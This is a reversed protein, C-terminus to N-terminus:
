ASSVSDALLIVAEYMYRIWMGVYEVKRLQARITNPGLGRHAEFADAPLVGLERVRRELDALRLGLMARRTHLSEEDRVADQKTSEIQFGISSHISIYNM